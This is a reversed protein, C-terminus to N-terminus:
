FELDGLDIDGQKTKSDAKDSKDELQNNVAEDFLMNADDEPLAAATLRDGGGIIKVAQLNLSCGNYQGKYFWMGCIIQCIQGPYILPKMDDPDMKKGDPGLILPPFTENASARVLWNGYNGTYGTEDGDTVPTRFDPRVKGDKTKKFFKAGLEMLGYQSIAAGLDSWGPIEAEKDLMLTIQYKNKGGMDPEPELLVPFKMPAPGLIIRVEKLPKLDTM